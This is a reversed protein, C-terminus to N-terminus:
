EFGKVLADTYLKTADRDKLKAATWANVRMSNFVNEDMENFSCIKEYLLNSEMDKIIYGNIGDQVIDCTATESVIVPVGCSMAEFVGRGYSESLSMLVSVCRKKRYISEIDHRKLHGIIKINSPLTGFDVVEEMEKWVKGIIWLENKINNKIWCEIVRHTGKIIGHFAVSVFCLEGKVDLNLQNNVIDTPIGTVFIKKKEIGFDVYTGASFSSLCIIRDAFNIGKIYDNISSDLIYNNKLSKLEYKEAEKKLMNRTYYPHNESAEVVVKKGQMKCFKVLFSPRPKLLVVDGNINSAIALIGYIKENALYYTDKKLFFHLLTNVKFLIKLLFSTKLKKKINKDKYVVKDTDSPVGYCNALREKRYLAIIIKEMQSGKYSDGSFTTMM